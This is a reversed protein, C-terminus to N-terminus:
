NKGDKLEKLRKNLNYGRAQAINMENIIDILKM